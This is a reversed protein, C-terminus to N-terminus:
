TEHLMTSMCLLSTPHFIFSPHDFVRVLLASDYFMVYVLSIFFLIWSTYFPVMWLTHVSLNPWKLVDEGGQLRKFLLFDDYFCYICAKVKVGHRGMLAYRSEPHDRDGFRCNLICIPYWTLIFHHRFNCVSKVSINNAFCM